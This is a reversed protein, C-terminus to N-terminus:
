HHHRKSFQRKKKVNNFYISLINQDSFIQIGLNPIKRESMKLASWQELDLITFEKINNTSFSDNKLKIFKNKKEVKKDLIIM